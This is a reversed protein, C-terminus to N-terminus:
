KGLKYVCKEMISYLQLSKEVLAINNKSSKSVINYSMAKTNDNILGNKQKLNTIKIM